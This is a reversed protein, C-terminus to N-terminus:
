REAWCRVCHTLDFAYGRLTHWALGRVCCQDLFRNIWGGERGDPQAVIRFPSQASSLDARYILEYSMREGEPATTPVRSVPMTCPQHLAPSCCSVDHDPLRWCRSSSARMVARSSSPTPIMRM